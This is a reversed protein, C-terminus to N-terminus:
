IKIIQPTFQYDKQFIDQFDSFSKIPCTLFFQFDLETIMFFCKSLVIQDLDTLFDDLLFAINQKGKDALILGQSIKILFLILKQQGRSAFFRAANGHYHIIFDDLHAGIVSRSFRTEEQYKSKLYLDWFTDFDSGIKIKSKYEFNIFFTENFYKKLYENVKQELLNLYTMRNKQIVISLEWLQRTWVKLIDLNPMSSSKLVANRNDLVQKYQKLKNVFDYSDFFLAQDLFLRRVDPYGKVLLLDDEVVSIISYLEVIEKYSRIEQQNLRVVKKGDKFGVAIQNTFDSQQSAFDIGIFFHNEEFHVLDRSSCLRFSKLYCAFYLAELISTKGSGNQGEIFVIKSDFDFTQDQFCKFNRLKIKTITV